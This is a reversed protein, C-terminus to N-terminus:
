FSTKPSMLLIIRDKALPNWVRHRISTPYSVPVCFGSTMGGGVAVSKNADASGDVMM